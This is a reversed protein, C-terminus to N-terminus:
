SSRGKKKKGPKKVSALMRELDTATLGAGIKALKERAAHVQPDMVWGVEKAAFGLSQALEFLRLYPDGPLAEVSSVRLDSPQGDNSFAVTGSVLVPKSIVISNDLPEGTSGAIRAVAEVSYNATWHDSGRTAADSFTWSGTSLFHDAFVGTLEPTLAVGIPDVVVMRQAALLRQLGDPDVDSILAELEDESIPLHIGALHQVLAALSLTYRVRGQLGHAHLEARLDPHLARAPPEFPTEGAGFDQHNASVFWIEDSSNKAALDLVTLWILTDRYGDKSKGQYPARRDSARQAIDLHPIEPVPVIEAGLESLRSRLSKEYGDIREQIRRSVADVEDQIGLDAVKAEAFKKREDAWRRPAVNITEVLVVEPILLRVHWDEMHRELINWEERSLYPSMSLINTDLVIGIM